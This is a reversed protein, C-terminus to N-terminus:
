SDRLSISGRLKLVSTALVRWNDRDLVSDKWDRTNVDIEKIDTRINNEWKRRLRGIPRNEALKDTLMKFFIEQM